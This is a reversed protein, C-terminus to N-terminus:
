TEPSTTTTARAAVYAANMRELRDSLIRTLNLFVRSAIRPYRRQIRQLFTQDVRLVEVDDGSAIVDATRENHRVLAMEGFVDGRKLHALERRDGNSNIVVKAEGNLVVYMADGPDGQNVIAEGPRFRKMDGMLVVVRAQSPRLGAFLPITRAPDEGLKVGVLDWLTIIKATALLAPLLILNAGLATAMTVSSLVGFNQIPVFSSFAFTLFGLFLAVTTYIIPAGVTRLTRAIAEEQDTEGRLELNLRAMYHITSDVAIGLAIAAILSTGLNLYIGSWGMVGFFILIPLANPLIALFGIRVSLFMLSMVIFIVGLALALSKVQGAVIESTTGTLLVLNGTLTVPLEAPFHNAIYARIRGLTQEIVASGSLNTRVLISATAFDPTIVSSFTEPSTSVMKLVPDLMAPDEWFTKPKDAAVLNGQADVVLDGGTGKNLGSELLELYDVVSISSTIGPQEALFRQLDKILWLTTWKRLAGAERGDVIIYFPNSGVIERNIIENDVRVESRPSFYSLFDSDVQIRTMGVLSVLAIALSVAWIWPRSSAASRALRSLLPMLAPSGDKARVAVREIPLMALVAPLFCLCVITLFVTGVVAFFGLEWIAPIRNVMLSGFGIVTTVASITLPVWVRDFAAGVVEAEDGGTEAQEYYRAMVHIAYSSGVVLMLPPLVFTGLTIAKGMAVLVGLTWVLAMLVTLLPLLVGRKTRFSIWFTLVVGILAIPTFRFLDRRMLRVAAEKLHAAGTFYFKQQPAEETALIEAIRDDLRLDAYQVDSLPAFFVNIAAGREDPAVLNERYLPVAALKARLTAIEEPSPPLRPLLPPPTFVDAAVDKANTISLVSEVGELKSVATTVRAIKELTAPSFLDDARVGIVGVDDSGFRKRVQDYYTVQPDGAPLVSELSSEIRIGLAFWGLVATVALMTVLVSSPHRVLWRAMRNM